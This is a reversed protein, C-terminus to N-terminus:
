VSARTSIGLKKRLSLMQQKMVAVHGSAIEVKRKWNQVAKQLEYVEAKQAIYDEVKPVKVSEHQIKLNTNKKQAAAGEKKVQEIETTLKDVHEQRLKLEKRLQGQDATLSGLKDTLANLTQVTRTTTGKLEVLEENKQEIRELFQHNEIELQSFDIEHFAEGVDERQRLNNLHKAIQKQMQESKERTKVLHRQLEEPREAMYKLVKDASVGKEGSVERKFHAMEMKVEKARNLAEELTARFQERADEAVREQRDRDQKLREGEQTAITTKDEVGLILSREESSKRRYKHGRRKGGGGQTPAQSSPGDLGVDDGDDRNAGDRADKASRQAHLYAGFIRNEESILGVDDEVQAVFAQLEPLDYRHVEELPPLEKTYIISLPNGAM